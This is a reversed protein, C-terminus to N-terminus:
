CGLAKIAARGMSYVEITLRYSKLYMCIHILLVWRMHPYIVLMIQCFATFSDRCKKSGKIITVFTCFTYFELNQLNSFASRFSKKQEHSYTSKSLILTLSFIRFLNSTLEMIFLLTLMLYIHSPAKKLIEINPKQRLSQLKPSHQSNLILQSRKRDQFPM